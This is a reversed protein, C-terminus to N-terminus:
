AGGPARPCRYRSLWDTHPMGAGSRRMRAGAKGQTKGSDLVVV